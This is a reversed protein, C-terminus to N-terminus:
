SHVDIIPKDSYTSVRTATGGTYGFTSAAPSQALGGVFPSPIGGYSNFGGDGYTARRGVYQTTPDQTAAFTTQLRSGVTSDGTSYVGSRGGFASPDPSGGGFQGFSSSPSNSATSAGGLYTDLTASRLSRQPVPQFPSPFANDTMSDARRQLGPPVVPPPPPPPILFIQNTDARAIMDGVSVWITDLHTRKMLLDPTFFGADHWNQM